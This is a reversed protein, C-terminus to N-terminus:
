KNQARESLCSKTWLFERKEKKVVSGSHSPWLVDLSLLWLCCTMVSCKKASSFPELGLLSILDTDAPVPGPM